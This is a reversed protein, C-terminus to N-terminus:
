ASNRGVLRRIGGLCFDWLDDIWGPDAAGRYLNRHVETSILGHIIEAMKSADAARVARTKMGARLLDAILENMPALAASLEEPRNEALRIHEQSIALM